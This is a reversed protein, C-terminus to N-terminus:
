VPVFNYWQDPCRRVVRELSRSVIRAYPADDEGSVVFPPDVIGRYWGGDRVVFAPIVAAGTARSLAFPGRPFYKGAGFFEAEGGDDKGWRDVLMAVMENRRLAAMMELAAFPSGDLVITGINHGKRYTERIRDVRAGGEPGTVVNFPVGRKGFCVAGLEWNGIHGTVLIVGRGARFAADLNGAGDLEPVVRDLADAPLSRFRAYDVLFRAYNRFIRRALRDIGAPAAEPFARRLNSALNGLRTRCTLHSAIAVVDAAPYLVSTPIWRACAFGLRYFAPSSLLHRFSDRRDFGNELRETGGQGM